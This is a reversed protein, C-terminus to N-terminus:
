RLAANDLRGRRVAGSRRPRARLLEAAVSSYFNQTVGTGFGSEGEFQIELANRCAAHHAMLNQAAGLLKTRDSALQQM